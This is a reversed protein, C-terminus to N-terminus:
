PPYILYPDVQVNFRELAGPWASVIAQATERGTVAERLAPGGALRDFHAQYWGIDDGHSQWVATLLHVATVTPDYSSRDTVRLRIGVLSRGSFKGDGPDTPTFVVGEFVVGPLDAARVANLV